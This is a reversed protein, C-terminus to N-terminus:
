TESMIIFWYVVYWEEPLGWVRQRLLSMLSIQYFKLMSRENVGSNVFVFDDYHIIAIFL